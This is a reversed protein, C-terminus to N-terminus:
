TGNCSHQVAQPGSEQLRSCLSLMFVKHGSNAKRGWGRDGQNKEWQEDREKKKFVKSLSTYIHAMVQSISVFSCSDLVLNPQTALEFGALAVHFGKEIYIFHLGKTMAALEAM